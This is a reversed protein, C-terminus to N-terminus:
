GVAALRRVGITVLIGRYSRLHSCEEGPSRAGTNSAISSLAIRSQSALEAQAPEFPQRLNAVLPGSIGRMTSGAGPPGRVM